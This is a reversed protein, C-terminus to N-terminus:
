DIIVVQQAVDPANFYAKSWDHPATWSGSGNGSSDLTIQVEQTTTPTGGSVTVVITQSARAPNSYNIRATSGPPMIDGPTIRMSQAIVPATFLALLIPVPHFRSNM